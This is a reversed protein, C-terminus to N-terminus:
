HPGHALVAHERRALEGREPEATHDGRPVPEGHQGLDSRQAAEPRV